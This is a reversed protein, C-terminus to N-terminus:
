LHKQKPSIDVASTDQRLKKPELGVSSSQCRYCTWLEGTQHTMLNNTPVCCTTLLLFRPNPFCVRLREQRLFSGGFDLTWISHNRNWSILSIGPILNWSNGWTSPVDGLQHFMGLNISCGWTSPVDGVPILKLEYSEISRKSLKLPLIGTGKPHYGPQQVRGLLGKFPSIGLSYGGYLTYIPNIILLVMGLTGGNERHSNESIEPGVVGPIYSGM